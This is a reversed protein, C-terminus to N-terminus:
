EGDKTDKNNTSIEEVEIIVIKGESRREPAENRRFRNLIMPAIILGLKISVVILVLFVAIELLTISM